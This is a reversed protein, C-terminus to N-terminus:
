VEKFSVEVQIVRLSPKNDETRFPQSEEDIWDPDTEIWEDVRWLINTLWRNADERKHFITCHGPNLVMEFHGAPLARYYPGQHFGYTHEPHMDPKWNINKIIFFETPLERKKAM